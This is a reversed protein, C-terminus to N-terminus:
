GNRGFAKKSSYFAVISAILNFIPYTWWIRISGFKTEYSPFYFFSFQVVWLSMISMLMSAKTPCTGNFNGNTLAM